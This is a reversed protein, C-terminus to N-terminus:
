KNIKEFNNLPLLELAPFGWQNPPLYKGPKTKIWRKDKKIILGSLKKIDSKGEVFRIFEEIACEYDGDYCIADINYKKFFDPMTKSVPGYTLIKSNKSIKKIYFLLKELGDLNDFTNVICIIDYKKNLHAIITDYTINLLGADLINIELNKLSSNYKLYGGM